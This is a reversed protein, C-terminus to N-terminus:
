QLECIEVEAQLNQSDDKFRIRLEQLFADINGLEPADENHLQIVWQSAEGELNSTVVHVIAPDNPYILAHCDLHAWVQNLFFM